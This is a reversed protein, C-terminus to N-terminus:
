DKHVEPENSTVGIQYMYLDTALDVSYNVVRKNLPEIASRYQTPFVPIEEVMYEQWEKYVQKRYENDFAEESLGKELLEENKEDYYRAFNFLAHEGYLGSPDVDMGVSWAGAYIDVEPDDDGHQGVRDYFTEFEQLRGDLLQVNLGVAKWAQIYYQALPEAIDGGSMSAYNIVLEEGDPTKRFGDDGKEYGAEDLIENAKDPDYTPAEVDEAYFDGHWPTILTNAAWRLGHYFRKGVEDNDVAYWMARRLNVDAMKADPDPKVKKEEKDWTGLKFGVYSYANDVTGLWNINTLHEQDPYQDAPFASVMDVTGKELEKAVVSPDIVKITVKALAPKGRWYDENRVLTVSEGPVISDVVYPGFGIPKERLEKSESIEAVEMDGFIHKALPYSWFGGATLSPTPNIYTIKLTKEDVVEIGSITEAEGAHYEEMGEINRFTSDYRVGDYDPHGIVEHAFLFDEATVPEGDQWNVEDRITFTYTKKDESIEFTAAGDNTYVLNEDSSLLSEDFWKLIQSDPNGSYFNWNLTGAFPTDSVLGFVLEGDEIGEGTPLDVEFDEISYLGDDAEDEDGKKDKDGDKEAAKGNDSGKDGDGGSDKSCAVLALMLALMLAFLLKTWKMNRM